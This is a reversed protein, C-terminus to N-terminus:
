FLYFLIGISSIVGVIILSIRYHDGKRKMRKANLALGIVSIFFGAIMVYFLYELLGYDWPKEAIERGMYRDIISGSIPKSLDFIVITGLMVLWSTIVSIKIVKIIVDQNKRRDVFRGQSIKVM